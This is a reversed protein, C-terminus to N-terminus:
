DSRRRFSLYTPRRDERIAKAEYRTGPWGSWARRWDDAEAASWVFGAHAGVHMLTWTVYDSWDSAFRLEGGPKLARHVAAVTEGCVFRRKWHRRKPWPDLYLLDVRDLSAAPLWQLLKAGDGDFLRVNALGRDDIEALMAALGNVYAEAGIFGRGPHAEAGAALHEGSGFGIELVLTDPAHPFLESLPQPAAAAIDVAIRPLLDDLLRQQRLSLAHGKRRGYLRSRTDDAGRANM